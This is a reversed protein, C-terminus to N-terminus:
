FLSSHKFPCVCIVLNDLKFVLFLPRLHREVYDLSDGNDSYSHSRENKRATDIFFHSTTTTERICSVTGPLADARLKM